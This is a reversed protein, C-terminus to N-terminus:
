QNAAEVKPPEPTTEKKVLELLSAQDLVPIETKGDVTVLFGTTLARITLARKMEKYTIIKPQCDPCDKPKLIVRFENM